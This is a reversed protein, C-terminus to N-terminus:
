REYAARLLRALDEGEDGVLLVLPLGEYVDPTLGVGHLGSQEENIIPFDIM